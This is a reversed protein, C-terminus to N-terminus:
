PPFNFSGPFRISCPLTRGRNTSFFRRQSVSVGFFSPCPILIFTDKKNGHGRFHRSEPLSLLPTPGRELGLCRSFLVRPTPPRPPIEKCFIIFLFQSAPTRKFHGIFFKRVGPLPPSDRFFLAFFRFFFLCFFFAPLLPDKRPPPARLLLTDM